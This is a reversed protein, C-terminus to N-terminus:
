APLVGPLRGLDGPTVQDPSKGCLWEDAGAAQGCVAVLQSCDLDHDDAAVRILWRWHWGLDALAQDAITAFNYEVGVLSRAKASIQTHQEGTLTQGTSFALHKAAAYKIIPSIRVRGPEAEVIQGAGLTIFTHNYPSHTGHRILWPVVGPTSVVGFCGRPLTQLYAVRSQPRRDDASLGSTM